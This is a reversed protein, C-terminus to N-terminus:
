VLTLFDILIETFEFREQGNADLYKEARRIQETNMQTWFFELVEGQSKSTAV